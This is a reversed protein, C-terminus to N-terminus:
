EGGHLADRDACLKSVQSSSVEVGCLQETVKKVSRTSVGQVYMEMLALVFGKESRQYREFLEPSFRGERDRPVLLELKGVRTTLTRPRYGNRYGRRTETREGSEAGLFETFELELIKQVAYEVLVRLPDDGEDMKAQWLALMEKFDDQRTM